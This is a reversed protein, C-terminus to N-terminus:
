RVLVIQTLRRTPARRRHNSCPHNPIRNLLLASLGKQLLISTRTMLYNLSWFKSLKSLGNHLFSTILPIISKKPALSNQFCKFVSLLPPSWCKHTQWKLTESHVTWLKSCQCLIPVQRERYIGNTNMNSFESHHFTRWFPWHDNVIFEKLLRNSTQFSSSM